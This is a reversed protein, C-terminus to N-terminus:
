SIKRGTRKIIISLGHFLIPGVIVWAFLSLVEFTSMTSLIGHKEAFNLTNITSMLFLISTILAMTVAIFLTSLTQKSFLQFLGWLIFLCASFLLSFGIFAMLNYLQYHLLDTQNILANGLISYGQTGGAEFVFMRGFSHLFLLIFIVSLSSESVIIAQKLRDEKSKHVTWIDIFAIAVSITLFLFSIWLPQGYNVSSIVPLLFGGMFSLLSLLIVYVVTFSYLKSKLSPLIHPKNKLNFPIPQGSVIQKNLIRLAVVLPVVLASFVLLAVRFVYIILDYNSM